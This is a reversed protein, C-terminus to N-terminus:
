AGPAALARALARWELQLWYRGELTDLHDNPQGMTMLGLELQVRHFLEHLLLRGRARADDAPLLPWVYAAWRTGGWELPANVFGLTRPRDGAPAPESTAISQTAARL